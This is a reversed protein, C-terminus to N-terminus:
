AINLEKKLNNIQASISNDLLYDGFRIIIGGIIDQDVVKELKVEKAGSNKKIFDVIQTEHATTLDVSSTVKASIIGNEENNLLIFEKAITEMLDTRNKSSVLNFFSLTTPNFSSCIKSIATQKDTTKVIPSKLLTNFEKSSNCLEAFSNMDESVQATIKDENAKALLAKAYRVAIKVDSM